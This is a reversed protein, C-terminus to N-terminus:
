IYFALSNVPLLEKASMSFIILIFVIVHNGVSSLNLAYVGVDSNTHPSSRPSVSSPPFSKSKRESMMTERKKTALWTNGHSAGQSVM